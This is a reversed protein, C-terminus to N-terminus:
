HMMKFSYIINTHIFHSNASLSGSTETQNSGWIQDLTDSVFPAPRWKREVSLPLPLTSSCPASSLATESLRLTWDRDRVCLRPKIWVSVVREMVPLYGKKQTKNGKLHELTCPKRDTPWSFGVNRRWCNEKKHHPSTFPFFLRDWELADKPYFFEDTARGAKGSEVQTHLVQKLM